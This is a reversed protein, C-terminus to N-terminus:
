TRVPPEPKEEGPVESQILKTSLGLPDLRERSYMVDFYTHVPGAEISQGTFVSCMYKGQAQEVASVSYWLYTLEDLFNGNRSLTYFSPARPRKFGEPLRGYGGETSGMRSDM